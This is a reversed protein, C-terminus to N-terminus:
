TKEPLFGEKDLQLIIGLTLANRSLRLTYRRGNKGLQNLLGQSRLKRISQSINVHSVSPFLPKFDAAKVIDKNVAIELMKFELENIRKKDLAFNLAPIIIKEKAFGEDLLKDIKAVEDKVGQLMYECWTILSKETCDDAKALNLYYQNRNKGFIAAPDLIRSGESDIFGAKTLMAYTLLRVARGNGNGFPHIWVFRHHAVAVKLLDLQVPTDENIFKILKDMLDNVDSPPPPIHKAKAIKRPETRYAGRRKDGEKNPDLGETIMRHLQLIFQKNIKLKKERQLEEIYSIGKEVNLIEQLEEGTSIDEDERVAEVYDAITTHNGEIRSSTVSEIIQFITKLEFFVWPMTSGGLVRNRLPELEIILSGINSQIPPNPIYLKARM